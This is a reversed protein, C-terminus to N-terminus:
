SPSERVPLGESDLTMYWPADRSVDDGTTRVGKLCAWSGDAMEIALSGGRDTDTDANSQDCM